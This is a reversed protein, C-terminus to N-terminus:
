DWVGLEKLLNHVKKVWESRSTAHLLIPRDLIGDVYISSTLAKPPAGITVTRLRNKGRMARQLMGCVGPLCPNVVVLDPEIALGDAEECNLAPLPRCGAQAFIEGLWWLFGLDDDVILVTPALIPTMGDLEKVARSSICPDM